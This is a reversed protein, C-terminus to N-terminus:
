LLDNLFALVKAEDYSEGRELSGSDHISETKGDQNLVIFFPYGLKNGEPAYKQFVAENKNEKSFNLHYYLFKDELLSHISPTQQIYANFRLCWVCWNGGAQILVTKKEKQAQKVLADIDKQADAEPHYPKEFTAQGSTKTTQAYAANGSGLGILLLGLSLISFFTAKKM